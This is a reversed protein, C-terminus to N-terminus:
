AKGTSDLRVHPSDHWSGTPDDPVDPDGNEDHALDNHTTFMHGYGCWECKNLGAEACGACDRAAVMLGDWQPDEWCTHIKADPKITYSM